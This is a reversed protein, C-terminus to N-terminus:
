YAHQEVEGGYLLGVDILEQILRRFALSVTEGAGTYREAGINYEAFFTGQCELIEIHGGWIHKEVM